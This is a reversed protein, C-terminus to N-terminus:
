NQEPQLTEATHNSKVKDAVLGEPLSELTRETNPGAPGHEFIYEDNGSCGTVLTICFGAILLPATINKAM